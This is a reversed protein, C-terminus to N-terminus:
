YLGFVFFEGLASPNVVGLRASQRLHTLVSPILTFMGSFLTRSVVLRFTMKPCISLTDRGHCGILGTGSQRIADVRKSGTGSYTGVNEM